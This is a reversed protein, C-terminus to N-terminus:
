RHRGTLARRTLGTAVQVAAMAAVPTVLGYVLGTVVHGDTLLLHIGVEYTSFTTFGGLIGTGIFPGALRHVRRLESVVVKLVGMLACGVVNIVLTTTPFTGATHPWVLNAGHRLFAGLVGGLGVSLLVDRPGLAHRLDAPATSRTRGAAGPTSAAAGTPPAM